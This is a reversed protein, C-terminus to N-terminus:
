SNYFAQKYVTNYRSIFKKSMEIIKHIRIDSPLIKNLNTTIEVEPKDSYKILKCSIMNLVASVNKDTRSAVNWDIKSLTGYNCDSILNLSYLAKEIEGDVTRM